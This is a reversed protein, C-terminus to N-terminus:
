STHVNYLTMVIMMAMMATIKMMSRCDDVQILHRGGRADPDNHDDDDNGEEEEGDDDVIQRLYTTGEEQLHGLLATDTAKM